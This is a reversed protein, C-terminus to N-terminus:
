KPSSGPASGPAKFRQGFRKLLWDFEELGQYPPGGYGSFQQLDFEGSKLVLPYLSDITNEDVGIGGWGGFVKWGDRKSHRPVNCYLRNLIYIKGGIALDSNHEASTALSKIIERFDEPAFRVYKLLCGMLIKVEANQHPFQLARWDPAANIAVISEELGAGRTTSIGAFLLVFCLINLLYTIM